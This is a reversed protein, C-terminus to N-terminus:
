RVQARFLLPEAMMIQFYDSLRSDQAKLLDSKARKLLLQRAAGIDRVIERGERIQAPHDFREHCLVDPSSANYIFVELGSLSGRGSPVKAPSIRAQFKFLTPTKLIQSQSMLDEITANPEAIPPTPTAYVSNFGLNLGLIIIWYHVRSTRNFQNM